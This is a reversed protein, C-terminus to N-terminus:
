EYTSDAIPDFEVIASNSGAAFTISWPEPSPRQTAGTQTFDSGLTAPWLGGSVSFNVTLPNTAAGSRQFIFRLSLPSDEEIWDSEPSIWVLPPLDLGWLEYGSIVPTSGSSDSFYASLFLTEGAIALNPDNGRDQVFFQTSPGFMGRSTLPTTTNSLTDTAWLQRGNVSDSATFYLIHGRSILDKPNSSAAGPNIDLVRSTGATTGDSRWLEYGCSGDNASFYLARAGVPTLHGPGRAPGPAG